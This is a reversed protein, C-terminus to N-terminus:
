VKVNLSILSFNKNSGTIKTRLTPIRNMHRDEQLNTLLNSKQKKWPM